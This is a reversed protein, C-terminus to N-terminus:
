NITTPYKLDSTTFGNCMLSLSLNVAKFFVTYNEICICPSQLKEGDAVLLILLFMKKNSHIFIHLKFEVIFLTADHTVLVISHYM